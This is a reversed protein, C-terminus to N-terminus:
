GSRARASYNNEGHRLCQLLHSRPGALTGVVHDRPGLMCLDGAVVGRVHQVPPYNTKVRARSHLAPSMALTVFGLLTYM